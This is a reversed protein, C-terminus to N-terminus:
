LLMLLMIIGNETGSRNCIVVVTEKGAGDSVDRRESEPSGVWLPRLRAAWYNLTHWDQKAHSEEGSDLWANLLILLNSRTLLAHEAIEYPGTSSRWDAPPAPNLDM